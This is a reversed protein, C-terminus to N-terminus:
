VVLVKIIQLIVDLYCERILEAVISFAHIEVERHSGPTVVRNHFGHTRVMSAHTGWENTTIRNIERIQIDVPIVVEGKFGLIEDNDPIRGVVLNDQIMQSGEKGVLNKM